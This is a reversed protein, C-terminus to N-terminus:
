EGMTETMGVVYKLIALSDTEDPSGNGNIDSNKKATDCLTEAGLLQKNLAIVDMIDIECDLTVDGANELANHGATPAGDSELYYCPTCIGCASWLECDLEVKERVTLDDPVNIRYLMVPETTRTGDDHWVMNTDGTDYEEVTYGPHNADLYAQVAGWDVSIEVVKEAKEDYHRTYSSYSQLLSGGFYGTQYDATEGWGYFESILHRKALALLIAAELDAANDPLSHVNLELMRGTGDFWPQYLSVTEDPNAVYGQQNKQMGPFFEDLAEAIQQMGEDLEIGDQLIFRMYNKRRTFVIIAPQNENKTRLFVQIDAPDKLYGNAYDNVFMGHDDFTELGSAAGWTTSGWYGPVDASATLGTVPLCTLAVLAAGFRRMIKKM